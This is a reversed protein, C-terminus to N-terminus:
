NPENLVYVEKANAEKVELHVQNLSDLASLLILDTKM